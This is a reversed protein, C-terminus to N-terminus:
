PASAASNLEPIEAKVADNLDCVAVHLGYDIRTGGDGQGAM